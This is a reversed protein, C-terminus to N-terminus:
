EICYKIQNHLLLILTSGYQWHKLIVILHIFMQVTKLRCALIEGIIVIYMYNTLEHHSAHPNQDLWIKKITNSKFFVIEIPMM